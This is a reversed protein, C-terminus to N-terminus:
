FEWGEKGGEQEERVRDGERGGRERKGGGERARKRENQWYEWLSIKGKAM